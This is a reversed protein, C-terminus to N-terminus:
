LGLEKRKKGLLARARVEARRVRVATLYAEQMTQSFAGIAESVEAIVDESGTATIIKMTDQALEDAIDETIAM